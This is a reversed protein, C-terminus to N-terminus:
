TREFIGFILFFNEWNEVFNEPFSNITTCIIFSSYVYSNFYKWINSTVKRFIKHFIRFIKKLNEPFELSLNKKLIIEVDYLFNLMIPRFNASFFKSSNKVFHVVKVNKQWKINEISEISEISEICFFNSKQIDYKVEFGFIEFSNKFNSFSDHLTSFLRLFWLFVSFNCSIRLLFARITWLFDSFYKEGM